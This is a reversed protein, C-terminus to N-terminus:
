VKLVLRLSCLRNKPDEAGKELRHFPGLKTMADRKTISEKRLSFTFQEWQTIKCLVAAKFLRLRILMTSPM